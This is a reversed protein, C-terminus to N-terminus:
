ASEGIPEDAEDAEDLGDVATALRGIPAAPAEDADDVDDVDDAHVDDDADDADDPAADDDVPQPEEAVPAEVDDIPDDFPDDFDDHPGDDDVFTADVDDVDNPDAVDGEADSDGRAAALEADARDAAAADAAAAAEANAAFRKPDVQDKILDATERMERMPQDIASKFEEQFGTGLKRLEAYTQMARKIAGPLKEPGLVVLALLLIFIIESGQLNFM